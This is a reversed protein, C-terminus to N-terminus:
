LLKNAASILFFMYELRFFLAIVKAKKRRHSQVKRDNQTAPAPFTLVLVPLLEGCEGNPSDSMKVGM